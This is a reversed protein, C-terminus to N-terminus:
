LPRGNRYQHIASAMSRYWAWAYSIHAPARTWVRAEMCCDGGTRSSLPRNDMKTHAPESGLVGSAM